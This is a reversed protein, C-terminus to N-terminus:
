AAPDGDFDEALEEIDHDTVANLEQAVNWVRQLAASSKKGLLPIDAATFQLEGAENIICLALFRARINQVNMKQQGRKIEVTSAEFADRESASLMRIRVDGGWEPVPVDRFTMDDASLIQDRSLLAM